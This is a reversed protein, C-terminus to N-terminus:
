PTKHFHNPLLAGDFVTHSILSIYKMQKMFPPQKTFYTEDTEGRLSIPKMQKLHPSIPKM